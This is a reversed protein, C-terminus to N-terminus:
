LMLNLMDIGALSLIIIIVVMAVIKIIGFGVVVTPILKVPIKSMGFNMVKGIKEENLFTLVVLLTGVVIAVNYM